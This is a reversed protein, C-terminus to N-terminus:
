QTQRQMSSLLCCVTAEDLVLINTPTLLARALSVLQKQGQSLNSGIVCSNDSEVDLICMFILHLNTSRVEKM